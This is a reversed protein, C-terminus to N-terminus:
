PYLTYLMVLLLEFSNHEVKSLVQFRDSLFININTHYSSGPSQFLSAGRLVCCKVCAGVFLIVEFLALFMIHWCLQYPMFQVMIMIIRGLLTRDLLFLVNDFVHTLTNNKFMAVITM